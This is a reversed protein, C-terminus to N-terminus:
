AAPEVVIRGTPPREGALYALTADLAEERVRRESAESYWAVHPSLLLRPAGFLPSDERPPEDALVDLAAAALRGEHLSKALASEDVLGGRSVNVFIASSKLSALESAGIIDRTEPTLPLHLSIVDSAILLESLSSARRVYAPAQAPAPDFGLIAGALPRLREALALGIRGLGVVGVTLEDFSPIPRLRDWSPWEARAIADAELLRRNLALMMALAHTAVEATAYDPTHFVAIGRAKAADLDLADLGIGARAIMRVASGLAGVHAATLPNNTVIVADAQATSLAVDSPTALSRIEVLARVGARASEIRADGFTGEALVILPQAERVVVSGRGQAPTESTSSHFDIDYYRRWPCLTGREKVECYRWPTSSPGACRQM